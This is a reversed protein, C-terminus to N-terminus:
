LNEKIYKEIMLMSNSSFLIKEKDVLIFIKEKTEKTKSPKVILSKKENIYNQNGVKYFGEENLRTEINNKKFTRHHGM